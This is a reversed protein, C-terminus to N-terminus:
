VCVCEKNKQDEWYTTFDKSRFPKNCYFGQTNFTQAEKNFKKALFFKLFLAPIVHSDYLSYKDNKGFLLADNDM